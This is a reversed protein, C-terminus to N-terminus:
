DFDIPRQGKLRLTTDMRFNSETVCREAFFLKLAYNRGEQLGFRERDADLDVTGREQRHIGGLDVALVGNIFVWVDDDGYFEFTLNQSPDERDERATYTFATELEYTFYYNHTGVHTKQMDNWLIGDAPFFYRNSGRSDADRAFFFVGSKDPHKELRLSLRTDKNVGDVDRFWQDFSSPGQVKYRDPNRRAHDSLVPKGDASLRDAVMGRTLGAPGQSRQMDPHSRKFDRLTGTLVVEGEHHPEISGVTFDGHGRGEGAAAAPGAVAFAAAAAAALPALKAPVRPRSPHFM